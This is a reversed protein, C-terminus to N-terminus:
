HIRAWQEGTLDGIPTNELKGVNIERLLPTTEYRCGPLAIKATEIARTLDSTYIKDFTIGKLFEGAKRADERGKDTLQVDMWGTWRKQLNTESEGHRVVYIRM